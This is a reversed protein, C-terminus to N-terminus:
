EFSTHFSIAAWFFKFDEEGCLMVLQMPDISSRNHPCIESLTVYVAVLKHKKRGSGIVNVVDFADQYLILSVVSSSEKFLTNEKFNRGDRIDQLERPNQPTQGKANIM